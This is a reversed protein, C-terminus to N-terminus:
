YESLGNSMSNYITLSAFLFVIFTAVGSKKLLMCTCVITMRM